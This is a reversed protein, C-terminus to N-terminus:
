HWIERHCLQIAARKVVGPLGRGVPALWCDSKFGKHYDGFTAIDAAVFRRCLAARLETLVGSFEHLLLVNM